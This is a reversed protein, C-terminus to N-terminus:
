APRELEAGRFGSAAITGKSLRGCHQRRARRADATSAAASRAGAATEHDAGPKGEPAILEANPGDQKAMLRDLAERGFRGSRFRLFAFDFKDPAIM